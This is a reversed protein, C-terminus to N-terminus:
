TSINSVTEIIQLVVYILGIIGVLTLVCWYPIILKFHEKRVYNESLEKLIKAELQDTSQIETIPKKSGGGLLTTSGFSNEQNDTM